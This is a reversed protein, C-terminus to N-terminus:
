IKKGKLIAAAVDPDVVNIEIGTSLEFGGLTTIKPIVEMHWHHFRYNGANKLPASHIFFNFDPDGLYKKVRRLVSQLTGAMSRLEILPTKSFEPLHRKPYIRVELPSRSIFPTMAVSYKDQEIIRKGDRIDSAITVCRVCKKHKHYFNAAGRLSNEVSPPIIPLALLQYHPHYISAGAGQGWNFFSSAYVNCTDNAYMKYREQIMKLLDTADALSLDAFNKYHNRTIILDHEGNGTKASYPGHKFSVACGELHSLAPYKNRVLVMKWSKENPYALIPPWNDSKKLDEFPCDKKPAVKRQTKKKKLFNPRKARGPALIIWAGSALDQRLESM